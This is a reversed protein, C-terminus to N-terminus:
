NRKKKNNNTLALRYKFKNPLKKRASIQRIKNSKM